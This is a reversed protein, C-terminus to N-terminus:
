ESSPACRECCATSTALSDSRIDAILDWIGNTTHLSHLEPLGRLQRIVGTTSKGSVEIMLIQCCDAGFTCGIMTRCRSFAANRTTVVLERLAGAHSMTDFAIPPGNLMARAGVNYLTLIAGKLKQSPHVLSGGLKISPLAYTIHQEV